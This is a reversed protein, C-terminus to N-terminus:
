VTKEKGSSRQPIYKGTLAQKFVEIMVVVLQFDNM